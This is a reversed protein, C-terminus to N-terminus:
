APEPKEMEIDNDFLIGEEVEIDETYTEYGEAEYTVKNTGAPLPLKYYGEEDSMVVVDTTNATIKVNKLPQETEFDTIVGETGTKISPNKQKGKLDIIMRVGTYGSWLTEDDYRIIDITDDLKAIVKDVDRFLVDMEEKHKKREAIRVRPMPILQLYKANLTTADTIMQQTLKYTAPMAAVNQGALTLVVACRDNLVTDAANRFDSMTFSVAERLDSNGTHVAYGKVKMAIRLVLLELADRTAAKDQTPGKINTEILQRLTAINAIDAIILLMYDKFMPIEDCATKNLNYWAILALYMSRKNEKYRNM